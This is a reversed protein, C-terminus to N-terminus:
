VKGTETGPCFFLATVHCVVGGEPLYVAIGDGIEELLYSLGAWVGSVAM